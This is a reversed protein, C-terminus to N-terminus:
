KSLTSRQLTANAKQILNELVSNDRLPAHPSDVKNRASRQLSGVRHIFYEAGYPSQVALSWFDEQTSSARLLEFPIPSYFIRGINGDDCLQKLRKFQEIDFDLFTHHMYVNGGVHLDRPIHALSMNGSIDLDVGVYLRKPLEKLRHCDPLRLSKTTFLGDPLKTLLEQQHINLNGDFFIYQLGDDMCVLHQLILDEKLGLMHFFSRVDSLSPQSATRASLSVVNDGLYDQAIRSSIQDRAICQFNAVCESIRAAEQAQAALRQAAKNKALLTKFINGTSLVRGTDPLLEDTTSVRREAGFPPYLVNNGTGGQENLPM